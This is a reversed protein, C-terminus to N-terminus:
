CFYLVQNKSYVSRKNDQTVTRKRGRGRGRCPKSHHDRQIEGEMEENMLDKDDMGAKSVTRTGVENSSTGSGDGGAAVGDSQKLSKKPGSVGDTVSYRSSRRKSGRTNITTEINKGGANNDPDSKKNDDKDLDQEDVSLNLIQSGRKARTNQVVSEINRSSDSPLDIVLGDSDNDSDEDVVNDTSHKVPKEVEQNNNSAKAIKGTTQSMEESHTNAGTQFTTDMTTKDASNGGEVSRQRLRSKIMSMQQMKVSLDSASRRTRPLSKRSEVGEGLNKDSVSQIDTANTKEEVDSKQEAMAIRVSRKTGTSDSIGSDGFTNDETAKNFCEDTEHTGSKLNGVDMLKESNDRKLGDDMEEHADSLESAVSVAIGEDDRDLESDTVAKKTEGVTKQKISEFSETSTGDNRSEHPDSTEKVATVSHYVPKRLSDSKAQSKILQLEQKLMELEDKMPKEPSNMAKQFPREKSHSGCVDTSTRPSKIRCSEEAEKSRLTTDMGFTELDDFDEADIDFMGGEKLKQNKKNGKRNKEGVIIVDRNGESEGDSYAGASKEKMEAGMCEKLGEEYMDLEKKMDELQPAKDVTHVPKVGVFVHGRNQPRKAFARIAHKQFLQNKDKPTLDHSRIFPKDLFAVRHM